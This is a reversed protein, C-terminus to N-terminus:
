RRSAKIMRIYDMAKKREDPSLELIEATLEDDKKPPSSKRTQVETFGLLFDSSVNFYTALLVLTESNPERENKEYNIYTTYPMGLDSAMQRMSVNKALRLNKLRDDFMTFVGKHLNNYLTFFLKAIHKYLTQIYVWFSHISKPYIETSLLTSMYGFQTYLKFIGM